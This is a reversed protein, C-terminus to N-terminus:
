PWVLIFPLAAVHGSFPFLDFDKEDLSLPPSHGGAETQCRHHEVHDVVGGSHPGGGGGPLQGDVTDLPILLQNRDAEVGGPAVLVGLLEDVNEALVLDRGGEEHHPFPHIFVGFRHLGEVVRAVLHHVVGVGVGVVGLEGGVLHHGVQVGAVVLDLRDGAHPGGQDAQGVAVIVVARDVGHAGDAHLGDLPIHFRTCCLLDM